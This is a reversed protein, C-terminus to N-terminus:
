SVGAAIIPGHARGAEQGEDQQELVPAPQGGAFEGRLQPYRDPGHVAVDVREAARADRDVAVGPVAAAVLQQATVPGPEGPQVGLLGLRQEQGSQGARRRVQAQALHERRGLQLQGRGQRHRQPVPGAPDTLAEM